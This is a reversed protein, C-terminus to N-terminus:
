SDGGETFGEGAVRNPYGQAERLHKACRSTQHHANTWRKAATKLVAQAGIVGPDAIQFRTALGYAKAAECLAVLASYEREMAAAHKDEPTAPM